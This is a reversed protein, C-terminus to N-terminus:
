AGGLVLEEVIDDVWIQQFHYLVRLSDLHAIPHWVDAIHLSGLPSSGHLGPKFSHLLFDEPALSHHFTSEIGIVEHDHVVSTIELHIALGYLVDYEGEVLLDVKEMALDVVELALDKFVLCPKFTHTQSGTALDM